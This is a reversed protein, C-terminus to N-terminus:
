KLYRGAIRANSLCYYHPKMLTHSASKQSKCKGLTAKYVEAIGRADTWSCRKVTVSMLFPLIYQGTQFHNM